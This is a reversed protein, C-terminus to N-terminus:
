ARRRTNMDQWLKLLQKRVKRTMAADSQDLALQLTSEFTKEAEPLLNNKILVQGM